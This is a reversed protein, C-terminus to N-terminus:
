RLEKLLQPLLAFAPSEALSIPGEQLRLQKLWIFALTFAEIPSFDTVASEALLDLFTDSDMYHLDNSSLLWWPDEMPGGHTRRIREHVYKKLTLGPTDPVYLSEALVSYRYAFNVVEVYFDAILRDCDEAALTKEFGGRDKLIKFLREMIAVELEKLEYKNAVLLLEFFHEYTSTLRGTYVFEIALSMMASSVDPLKIEKEGSEKFRDSFMTDFYDSCSALVCRHCPIRTGNDFTLIVDVYREDKIFGYLRGRVIPCFWTM